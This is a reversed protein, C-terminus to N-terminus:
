DRKAFVDAGYAPNTGVAILQGSGDPRFLRYGFGVLLNSVSTLDQGTARSSQDNWELQILRCRGEQLLMTAGRLVELEYGEVDIKIGGVLRRGVLEDLAVMPVALPGAADIHNTSDLGSTFKTAGSARGAVAQVLETPYGNLRVNEALLRFTDPSPEIAIVRAGVDGAWITYTGVNAGVDVFLDGPELHSAWILMEAHDPPNAYVAKSASTRHLDAWLRSHSGLQVLSRRHLLRGRLQFAIAAGVARIRRDKNSPHGWTWGLVKPVDSLWRRGM